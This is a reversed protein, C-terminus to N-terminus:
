VRNSEKVERSVDDVLALEQHTMLREIDVLILMRQEVTGLGLIYEASFISGFEPAPKIENESLSVVDSVGDVIIGMVRGAINLIIVVTFENYKIENLNFKMRMDIIPVIVGRLNIVGKLFAPANPITTVTDFSRIEQVKLIELGYEEPGLTFTLFERQSVNSTGASMTGLKEM